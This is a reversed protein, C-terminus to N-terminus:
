SRSAISKKLSFKHESDYATVQEELLFDLKQWLKQLVESLSM